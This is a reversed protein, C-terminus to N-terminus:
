KQIVPVYIQNNIAGSVEGINDEISVSDLEPVRDSRGAQDNGRKQPRTLDAEVIEAVYDWAEKANMGSLTNLDVRRMEEEITLALSGGDEMRKDAEQFRQLVSRVQQILEDNIRNRSEGRSTLDQAFPTIEALVKLMEGRLEPSQWVLSLIRPSNQEYLITYHRGAVTENWIDDRMERLEQITTIDSEEIVGEAAIAAVVPCPDKCKGLDGANYIQQIESLTVVRNFIELEDLEAQLYYEGTPLTTYRGLELPMTNDIAGSILAFPTGVTEVGDVYWKVLNSPRDVTVALMHWNADSPISPGWQVESEGDSTLQLAMQGDKVFWHYGNLLGSTDHKQLIPHVGNMGNPFRIWTDFSFDGTGFSLDANHPIAVYQDTGNFGLAEEVMGTVTAPSNIKSGNYLNKIDWAESSNSVNLTSGDSVFIENDFPYWAVMDAPPLACSNENFWVTNHQTQFNSNAIFADIDGDNDVDGLAVDSSRLNGLAQATDSFIGNGDNEWVQNPGNLHAIFADLDGDGDFDDLAVAGNIAGLTQGSDTFNATGNNTWVRNDDGPANIIVADLDGDGNVDGLAVDRGTASGLTQSSLTFNGLPDNLWVENSGVSAFFIDLDGDNDLDGLDVGWNAAGTLIQGATFTGTSSGDNLWIQSSGNGAVVIDSFSDGNLDGLAIDLNNSNGLSQNLSFIGANNLWVTIPGSNDAVVIDIEGDNNLDAADIAADANTSLNQDFTYTGPTSLNNLWITAPQNYNAVAADLLNDGNFDVLTVGLSSSNGLTQGSDFFVGSGQAFAAEQSQAFILLSLLCAFAVQWILRSSRFKVNLTNM